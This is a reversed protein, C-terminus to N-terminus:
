SSSNNATALKFSKDNKYITYSDHHANYLDRCQQQYPLDLILKPCDLPSVFKNGINSFWTRNHCVHFVQLLSYLIIKNMDFQSLPISLYLFIFVSHFFREYIFVLLIDLTYSRLFLTTSSSMYHDDSHWSLNTRLTLAM